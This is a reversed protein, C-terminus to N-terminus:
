MVESSDLGGNTCYSQGVQWLSPGISTCDEMFIDGKDQFLLDWVDGPRKHVVTTNLAGHCVVFSLISPKLGNRSVWADVPEYPFMKIIDVVDQVVELTCTGSDRCLFEKNCDQFNNNKSVLTSIFAVDGVVQLNGLDMVPWWALVKAVNAGEKTDSSIHSDPGLVVRGNSVREMVEGVFVLWKYPCLFMSCGHLSELVSNNVRRCENRNVVLSIM